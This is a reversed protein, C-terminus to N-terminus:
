NAVLHLLAEGSRLRRCNEIIISLSRELTQPTLWAIHPTLVVTSCSTLGRLDPAPENEFVDLGAGGIHGSLLGDSMALQDILEGRATNILIAGPKLRALAPRDLLHHTDATLPLHLSIIDSTELLRDFTVAKATQDPRETRNWQQVTAGLASLVPALRRSVAGYGILGVVSGHLEGLAEKSDPASKWGDGNRTMTDLMTVRRLVALMLALTHEVVATTNSGPMNAVAVGADHAARLDITNVGVGIKQILRLRPARAIMEATVPKLVHLLVDADALEEILRVDDAEDVVTIKPEPVTSIRTRLRSSAAFHLIAKMKLRGRGSTQLQVHENLM